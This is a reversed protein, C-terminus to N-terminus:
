GSGGQTVTNAELSSQAYGSRERRESTFECENQTGALSHQTTNVEADISDSPCLAAGVYTPNDNVELSHSLTPNVMRCQFVEAYGNNEPVYAAAKYEHQGKWTLNHSTKAYGNSERRETMFERQLVEYPGTQSGALHHQATNVKGSNSACVAAKGHRLVEYQGEPTGGPPLPQAKLTVNGVGATEKFVPIHTCIIQIHSYLVCM